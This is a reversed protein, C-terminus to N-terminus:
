NRGKGDSQVGVLGSACECWSEFFCEFEKFSVVSKM